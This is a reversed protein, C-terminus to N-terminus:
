KVPILLMQGPLPDGELGNARRIDEMAAGSDKALEWLSGTGARRLILAPRNPDPIRQVGLELGAVVSVQQQAAATIDLTIETKVLVQGSGAVAQPEQPLPMATIQSQADANLSEKGDWKGSVGALTGDSGYYLLQFIGPVELELTEEERRMRPFDTLFTVDAVKEGDVRLTQEAYLAEKRNDLVVPLTVDERRLILERNPCYADELVTLMQQDCILYQATIGAKLRLAGDESIECELGTVAPLVDATAESGYERDLQAYQSFPLPFDWSQLQGEESNYLIHLNGNGRFVVKDAMVKKDTIQPELRCYLLKEPQPASDPLILEEEIPFTKEGAEKWLRLPYTQVLQQVDGGQNVPTETQRLIPSFAEAQVGLNCRVTIKRPSVGRGEVLRIRCAFRASGEPTEEPLDWKLQFPIWGDLCRPGSGDEPGYLVWVMVGGNACLQGDTWEKSRLVPQGWAGLIRGIDPMSDSLKIQQTLETSRVEQFVPELCAIKETEFQVDM